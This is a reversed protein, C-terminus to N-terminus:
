GDHRTSWWEVMSKYIVMGDSLLNVSTYRRPVLPFVASMLGWWAVTAGWSELSLGISLNDFLRNRFAVFLSFSVVPGALARVAFGLPGCSGERRFSYIPPLLWLGIGLYVSVSVLGLRLAVAYRSSPDGFRIGAGRAGQLWGVLIHGLEHTALVPSWTMLIMAATRWSFHFNMM